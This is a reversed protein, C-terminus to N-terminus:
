RIRFAGELIHIKKNNNDADVARETAAEDVKRKQGKKKADSCEGVELVTDYESSSYKQSPKRNRKADIMNEINTTSRKLDDIQKFFRETSPSVVPTFYLCDEDDSSRKEVREDSKHSSCSDANEDVYSDYDINMNIRAEIEDWSAKSIVPIPKSLVDDEPEPKPEPPPEPAATAEPAIKGLRKRELREMRKRIKMLKRAEFINSAFKPKKMKVDTADSISEFMQEMDQEIKDSQGGSDGSGSFSCTDSKSNKSSPASEKNSGSAGSQSFGDNSDRDTSRRESRSSKSSYHDDRKTPKKPDKRSSGSPPKRDKSSKSDSRTSKPDGSRKSDGSRKPDSRKSESRSSRSREKDKRDSKSSSREKSRSRHKSSSSSKTREKSSKSDKHKSSSSHKDRGRDTKRDKDSRDSKRDSKRHSDSRGKPKEDTKPEPQKHPQSDTESKDNSDSIDMEIETTNKDGNEATADTADEHRAPENRQSDDSVTTKEETTVISLRSTSSVKSLQSDQNSVDQISFCNKPTEARSESDHSTLGSIGSLHSDNTSEDHQSFASSDNLPEFPPSEDDDNKSDDLKDTENSKNLTKDPVESDPSIPDLDTPLLDATDITLPGNRGYRSPKALGLFKYVVDEVQPLFVANIKPNVVQDVIREVGTEFFGSEYINKRLMERLQNKNMDPRWIQNKLFGNVSGEVRQRLNQYAPKTDVDAICEKRFQDFIGQSKLECVIHDILRPDGPLM